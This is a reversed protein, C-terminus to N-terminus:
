SWIENVTYYSLSLTKQDLAEFYKKGCDTEGMKEGAAKSCDGDEWVITNIWKGKEKALIRQIFGEQTKIFNEQLSNSIELFEDEVVEKKLEFSVVELVNM